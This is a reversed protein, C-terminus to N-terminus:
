ETQGKLKAAAKPNGPWPNPDPTRTLAKRARSLSMQLAAYEQEACHNRTDFKGSAWEARMKMRKEADPAHRAEAAKKARQSAQLAYEREAAQMGQHHAKAAQEKGVFTARFAKVVMEPTPTTDKAIDFLKELAVREPRKEDTFGAEFQDDSGPTDRATRRESALMKPSLGIRKALTAVRPEAVMATYVMPIKALEKLVARTVIGPKSKMCKALALLVRVLARQKGDLTMRVRISAPSNELPPKKPLRSRPRRAAM